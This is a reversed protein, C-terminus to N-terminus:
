ANTTAAAAFSKYVIAASNKYIEALMSTVDLSMLRAYSLGAPTGSIVDDGDAGDVKSGEGSVFAEDNGGYLKIDCSQGLSFVVDAGSTGFINCNNGVSIIKNNVSVNEGAVNTHTIGGYLGTGCQIQAGEGRNVLTLAADGGACQFGSTANAVGVMGSGGVFIGGTSAVAKQKAYNSTTQASFASNISRINM